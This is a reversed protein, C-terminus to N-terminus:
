AKWATYRKKAYKVGKKKRSDDNVPIFTDMWSLSEGVDLLHYIGVTTWSVGTSNRKKHNCTRCSTVGNQVTGPGGKSHPVVHDVQSGRNGCYVCTCGDRALIDQKIADSFERSQLPKRQVLQKTSDNEPM